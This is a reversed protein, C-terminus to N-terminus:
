RGGAVAPVISVEEGDKIATDLDNLFRIDEGGVYINVFRRIEGREDFLREQFGPHRQNLATLVESVTQGELSVESSGDALRRLPTPIRLTVSM